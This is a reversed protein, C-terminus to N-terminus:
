PLTDPLRPISDYPILSIKDGLAYEQHGPYVVWLYELGLDQIAILMSRSRGPADAYKFDFGYRKGKAM